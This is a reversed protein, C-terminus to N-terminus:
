FHANNFITLHIIVKMSIEEDGQIGLISPATGYKRQQFDSLSKTPRSKVALNIDKLSSKEELSLNNEIVLDTYIPYM